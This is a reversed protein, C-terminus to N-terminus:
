PNMLKSPRELLSKSKPAASNVRSKQQGTGSAVATGVRVTEYRSETKGYRVVEVKVRLYGFTSGANLAPYVAAQVTSGLAPSEDSTAVAPMASLDKYADATVTLRDVPRDVTATLTVEFNGNGMARQEVALPVSLRPKGPSTMNLGDKSAMPGPGGAIALSAVSALVVAGVLKMMTKM